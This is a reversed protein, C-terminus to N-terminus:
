RSGIVSGSELAQAIISIEPIKGTTQYQNETPIAPNNAFLFNIGSLAPVKFVSVTVKATIVKATIKMTAASDNKGAKDNPGIASYKLKYFM